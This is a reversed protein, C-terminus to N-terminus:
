SLDQVQRVLRAFEEVSGTGPSLGEAEEAVMQLTVDGTHPSERLLEAFAAVTM